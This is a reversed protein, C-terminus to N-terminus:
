HLQEYENMARAMQIDLDTIGGVDHTTLTIEVIKYINSWEPHHNIDEALAAARSMFEWARKFDKFTFKKYLAGRAELHKWGNLNKLEKTIVEDILKDAM